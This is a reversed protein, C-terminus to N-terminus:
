LVDTYDGKMAASFPAFAVIATEAGAPVAMIEGRHVQTAPFCCRPLMLGLISDGPIHSRNLWEDKHRADRLVILKGPVGPPRDCM